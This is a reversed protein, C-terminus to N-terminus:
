IAHTPLHPPGTSGRALFLSSIRPPKSPQIPNCCPSGRSPHNLWDPALLFPSRFQADAGKLLSNKLLLFTPTTYYLYLETVLTVLTISPSLPSARRVQMDARGATDRPMVLTISPSTTVMHITTDHNDTFSPFTTTTLAALCPLDVHPPHGIPPASEESSMCGLSSTSKESSTERWRSTERADDLLLAEGHAVFNLFESQGRRPM